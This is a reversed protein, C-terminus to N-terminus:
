FSGKPNGGCDYSPTGKGKVEQAGGTGEQPEEIRVWAPTGLPGPGQARRKTQHPLGLVAPHLAPGAVRWKPGLCRGGGERARTKEDRVLPRHVVFSVQRHPQQSSVIAPTHLNNLVTHPEGAPTGEM